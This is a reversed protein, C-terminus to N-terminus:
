GTGQQKDVLWTRSHLDVHMFEVLLEYIGDIAVVSRRPRRNNLDNLTLRARTLEDRKTRVFELRQLGANKHQM